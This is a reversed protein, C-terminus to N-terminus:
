DLKQKGRDPIARNPILKYNQLYSQEGRDRFRVFRASM